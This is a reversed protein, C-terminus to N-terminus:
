VLRFKYTINVILRKFTIVEKVIYTLTLLEAKTLLM